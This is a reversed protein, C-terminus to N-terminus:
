GTIAATKSDKLGNNYWYKAHSDVTGGCKSCRWRKFLPKDPTADDSFDHPLPCAGLRRTNARVEAIIQDTDIM